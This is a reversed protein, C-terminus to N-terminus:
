LKQFVLVTKDAEGLDYLAIDRRQVLRMSTAREITEIPHFYQTITDSLRRYREGQRDFLHFDARYIGDDFDSDVALFRTADEAIYAGVAVHEFGFLTNIDFMFYGGPKLRAEVCAFFPALADAPLYNVMDFVATAADFSQTLECVDICEARVGRAQARRVMECSLDIGMAETDEFRQAIGELFAGSGCGIDLVSAPRLEDLLDYYLNYLYTQAEANPLLTESLAYLDLAEPTNTM